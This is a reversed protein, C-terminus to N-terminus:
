RNVCSLEQSKPSRTGSMRQSWHERLCRRRESRSSLLKPYICSSGLFLLRRVGARWAGEIVNTQIKLNELLFDAPYTNNVHIGGVKAAALVVVTPEAVRRSFCGGSCRWTIVPMAGIGSPISIAWTCAISWVRMLGALGRTIKRTVFTEGRRPAKTTLCCGM